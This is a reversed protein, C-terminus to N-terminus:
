ESKGKRRRWAAVGAAALGTTLLALTAPEPVSAGGGPESTCWDPVLQCTTGAQAPGSALMVPMMAAAMLALVVKRM